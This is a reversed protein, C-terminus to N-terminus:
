RVAESTWGNAHMLDALETSLHRTRPEAPAYLYALWRGFSDAKYTEARINGANEELWAKTYATCEKWGAEHREPTDVGLLRFRLAATMYFGLDIRLDVTDGDVVRLVETVRYDYTV